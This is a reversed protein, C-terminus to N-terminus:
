SAARIEREVAQRPEVIGRLNRALQTRQERDLQEVWGPTRRSAQPARPRLRRLFIRFFRLKM